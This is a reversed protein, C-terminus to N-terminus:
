NHATTDADNWNGSGRGVTNIVEGTRTKKEEESAEIMM